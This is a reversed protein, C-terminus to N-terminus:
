LPAFSCKRTIGGRTCRTSTRSAVGLIVAEGDIVFRKQRNKMAAEVIWPYRNTWNYGGRTILRVRDGDREPRAPLRRVQGRAALRATPCLPRAPPSAFNSCAALITTRMQSWWSPERGRRTTCCSLATGRPGHHPESGRGAVFAAPPALAFRQNADLARGGRPAPPSSYAPWTAPAQHGMSLSRRPHVRAKIYTL